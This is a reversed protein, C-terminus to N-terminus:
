LSHGWTTEYGSAEFFGRADQESVAELADSTVAFLAQLTRAKAKRIHPEEGQLLGGRHPEHGALLFSAAVTPLGEGRHAGEGM